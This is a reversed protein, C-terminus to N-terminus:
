GQKLTTAKLRIPSERIQKTSLRANRKSYQQQRTPTGSQTNSSIPANREPRGRCRAPLERQTYSINTRPLKSSRYQQQQQCAPLKTSSYQHKQQHLPLCYLHVNRQKIANPANNNDIGNASWRKCDLVILHNCELTKQLAIATATVQQTVPQLQITTTTLAATATASAM